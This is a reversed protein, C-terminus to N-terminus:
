RSGVGRRFGASRGRGADAAHVAISDVAGFRCLARWRAAAGPVFESSGSTASAAGATGDAAARTDPGAAACAAGGAASARGAEAAKAAAHAARAPRAAAGGQARDKAGM